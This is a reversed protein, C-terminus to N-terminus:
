DSRTGVEISAERANEVFLRVRELDKCFGGTELVRNTRTLSDVGWPRVARIADAVNEPSLGGALIVPLCSAAVIERSISWDHTFGAAGVGGITSSFSDLILYDAVDQYDAAIQLAGRDVVPVAQMIKLGPLLRKLEAAGAPSVMSDPNGCLHLIDPKVVRVMSAIGELDQEVTLAVKVARNGIVEFIRRGQEESVEGPLGKAAPTIGIHDVGLQVLALGEEPTQTTYIQVIMPAEAQQSSQMM